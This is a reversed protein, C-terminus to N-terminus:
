ASLIILGYATACGLILGILLAWLNAPKLGDEGDQAPKKGTIMATILPQKKVLSYFGIALIHLVVLAELAKFALGHLHSALRGQDYSILNSFPGSELGDTDIAFLGFAIVAAIILLLAIVSVAGLPNHGIGSKKGKFVYDYVAKPGRVFQSFRATSGGFLGWWVRFVMLGAVVSGAKKHWDLHGAEFSWWAFGILIVLAWHFLRTALDWVKINM